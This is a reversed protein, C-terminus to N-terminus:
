DEEPSIRELLAKASKMAIEIEHKDNENVADCLREMADYVSYAKELLRRTYPFLRVNSFDCPRSLVIKEMDADMERHIFVHKKVLFDYSM